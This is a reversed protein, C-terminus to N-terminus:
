NSKKMELPQAADTVAGIKAAIGTKTAIDNDTVIHVDLIREARFGSLMFNVEGLCLAWGDLWMLLEQRQGPSGRFHLVMDIDSGPGATLNKTSGVVYCAVVGFQNPDVKSALCKAMQMRWCWADSRPTVAPGAPAGPRAPEETSPEALLGMAEDLDANMLIRLVRGGTVGSVDIVRITDSLRAHRPVLEALINETGLLFSESFIIGEDDPYLPIYRIGAEVLDQFFHTGFSLDPIYNGTKRAIEILAATNNIDSYSVDVGLKIDGRSGWRGPGMLVFQRKPLVKNLAGVARGVAELDSRQPLESYRQPDVYVIHTIDPIRGNSIYRNATFVVDQEPVDRPINAPLSEASYSQPRCQLLYFDHGDSAFEIDVPMGLTDELTRLMTQMQEVFRTRQFLGHFSIIADDKDFDVGIISPQQIEGDRVVSVMNAIGPIEYGVEKLLVGLDITEFRNEQLNIVDMKQPSYRLTEEATVNVSLNPRGPAIMVPYDDSLRDVARTGLGPVIRVLGDERKIRPSWRFENNSFGVGAWAPFFYKGVRSGVVEQIMVGMEEGFDLLGREARYEIPDPSFTSSWVEAIADMLADLRKQKSGQNALFLSKYKGSFAAGMRDELLSSSRVILPRNGVDDLLVSLGKVIDSPFLASKFTHVIHPYELRVQNIDKYKQEVVEDFNNYHMFHLVVDSTIHWTKPIKVNKLLDFDESKKKLIQAALYLGASKGGLKGHSEASFIVNKLLHFFDSVGIYEKAINVYSLQDSLFRRILSVQVGKKGPSPTQPEDQMLHHYRRIADAVESLSLNRNVVQVLFSLKEEKMWKKILALIQEDSLHENAIRFVAASFDASFGLIRRKHPQNLDERLESEAAMQDEGFSVMLPSAEEVGSWCLHNLMKRSINLYLERDTDRLTELVTRWESKGNGKGNEPAVSELDQVIRRMRRHVIFRSLRDAISHLLKAEDDLFPGEDEDPREETYFVDITGFVMGQIVIDASQSWATQSFHPPVFTKDEVTIKALCIDSHQWGSPITEIIQGCVTELAKETSNLIEDIQFLCNLEKSREQLSELFRDLSKNNPKGSM